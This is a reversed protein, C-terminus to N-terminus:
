AVPGVATGCEPCRDPTARLDYGCTSCYGPRSRRFGRAIAPVRFVALGSICTVFWMPFMWCKVWGATVDRHFGLYNSISGYHGSSPLAFRSRWVPAYGIGNSIGTGSSWAGNVPSPGDVILFTFEGRSSALKIWRWTDAPVQRTYARVAIYDEISGSRVWLAITAVCLVLSMAALVNFIRRKM